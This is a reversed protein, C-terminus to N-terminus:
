GNIKFCDKIHDRLKQATRFAQLCYCFFINEEIIYHIIMFTNFDKIFCLAKKRRWRDIIVYTPYKVKNEYGFVSNGISNTKEIKHIDLKEQFNYTKLILDKLLIETLKQLEQKITIQLMLTDSWVGNLANM